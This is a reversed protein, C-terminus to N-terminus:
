RLHQSIAEALRATVRRYDDPDTPSSTLTLEGDPDAIDRVAADGAVSALLQMARHDDM